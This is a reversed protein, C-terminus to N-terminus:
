GSVLDIPNFAVNLDLLTMFVEDVRALVDGEVISATHFV